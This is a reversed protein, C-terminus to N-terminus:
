FVFHGMTRLCGTEDSLSGVEERTLIKGLSALTIFERVEMRRPIIYEYNDASNYYRNDEGRTFALVFYGDQWKEACAELDYAQIFYNATSMYKKMTNKNTTKM